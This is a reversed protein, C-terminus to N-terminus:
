NNYPFYTNTVDQSLVGGIVDCTVDQIRAQLWPALLVLRPQMEVFRKECTHDAESWVLLRGGDLANYNPGTGTMKAAVPNMDNFQGYFTRFGGVSRVLFYMDFSSGGANVLGYDFPLLNVIYGDLTIAGAGFAGGNLNDRFRRAEFTNMQMWDGSCVSWCTYADLICSVFSYPLVLAIDSATIGQTSLAPSWSVRMRFRRFINLLLDVIGATDPIPDGNWTAGAGGSMGNGNWDIVISNLLPDTYDDDILQELGDMQGCTDNNSPVIGRLLDQIIVETAMRIDWERDDNIQTGDLRYRPSVECYNLGSKTIDRVPGVRRLRGFGEIELKGSDWEYSYPDACPDCLWGTTFTNNAHKAPAVFNFFNRELHYVDSGEWGIWDLFPQTNTFSLSMLDNQGCLDFLPPITSYLSPVTDVTMTQRVNRMQRIEQLASGHKRLVKKDM